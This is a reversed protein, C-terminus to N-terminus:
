PASLFVWLTKGEEIADLYQNDSIHLTQPLQIPNM